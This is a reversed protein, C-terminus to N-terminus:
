NQGAVRRALAEVEPLEALYRDLADTVVAQASRDTLTSALRLRLHRYSDLRLTFAAKRGEALASRVEKGAKMRRRPAAETEFPAIAAALAEQHQVIVPKAGPAIEAEGLDNWGLDELDAEERSLAPIAQGTDVLLQPRMAPKAAGKRALLGSSLSALPKIAAM